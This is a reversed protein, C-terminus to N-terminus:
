LKFPAGFTGIAPEPERRPKPDYRAYEKVAITAGMAVIPIGVAMTVVAVMSLQPLELKCFRPAMHAMAGGDSGCEILHNDNPNDLRAKIWDYQYQYAILPPLALM